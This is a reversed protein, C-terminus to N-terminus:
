RKKSTSRRPKPHIQTFDFKPHSDALAAMVDAPTIKDPVAFYVRGPGDGPEIAISSMIDRRDPFWPGRHRGGPTFDVIMAYRGGHAHLDDISMGYPRTTEFAWHDNFEKDRKAVVVDGYTPTAYCFPIFKLRFLRRGRQTGAPAAPGSEVNDYGHHVFLKIDRAV